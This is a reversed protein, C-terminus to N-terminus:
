GLIRVCFFQKHYKAINQSLPKGLPWTIICTYEAQPTTSISVLTSPICRINSKKLHVALSYCKSLVTIPLMLCLSFHSSKRILIKLREVRNNSQLSDKYEINKNNMINSTQNTHIKFPMLYHYCVTSTWNWGCNACVFM